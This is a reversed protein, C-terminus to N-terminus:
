LSNFKLRVDEYSVPTFNNCDVGIDFSKGFPALKGHSHGFLHGSGYHSNYWVRHAYHSLFIIHKNLKFVFTNCVRGELVRRAVQSHDHNGLILTIEGNLRKVFEEYKTSLMFDGLHYIKDNKKVVSNWNNIIAENMEEVSSFPRNCHKLIGKHDFHTDACFFVNM